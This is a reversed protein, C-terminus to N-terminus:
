SKLKQLEKSYIEWLSNEDIRKIEVEKFLDIKNKISDQKEYSENRLIELVESKSFNFILKESKKRTYIEIYCKFPENKDKWLGCELYLKAGDYNWRSDFSTVDGSKSQYLKFERWDNIGKSANWSKLDLNIKQVIKDM